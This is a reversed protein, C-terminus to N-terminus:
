RSWFEFYKIAPMRLVCSVSWFNMYVTQFVCVFFIVRSVLVCILRCVFIFFSELLQPLVLPTDLFTSTCPCCVFVGNWFTCKWDSTVCIRRYPRLSACDSGGFTDNLLCYRNNLCRTNLPHGTWIRALAGVFSTWRPLALFWPMVAEKWMREWEILQRPVFVLVEVVPEPNCSTNERLGDVKFWLSGLM